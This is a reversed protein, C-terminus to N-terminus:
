YYPLICALAGAIGVLGAARVIWRERTFLENVEYYPYHGNKIARFVIVLGLGLVCGVSIGIVSLLTALVSAEGGIMFSIWCLVYTVGGAACIALGAFIPIIGGTVSSIMCLTYFTGTTVCTFFRDFASTM